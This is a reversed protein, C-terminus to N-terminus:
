PVMHGCPRLTETPVFTFGSPLWGVAVQDWRGCLRAETEREMAM